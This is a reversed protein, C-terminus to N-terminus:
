APKDALQSTSRWQELEEMQTKMVQEITASAHGGAILQKPPSPDNAATIIAEVCGSPDAFTFDALMGEILKHTDKYAGIPQDGSQVAGAFGTDFAGPEIATVSIGFPEVEMSLGMSLGELAFKSASYLAILPASCRGAVSTINIIHGSGQERLRPLAARIVDLAGFFNVEFMTRIQTESAEESAAQIGFGANNVLMDIRGFRDFTQSIAARVSEPKTVDMAVCLAHDPFREAFSAIDAPNRATVVVREGDCLVREALERGIGSSCGSILWVRNPNGQAM